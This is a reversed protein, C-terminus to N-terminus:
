ENEIDVENKYKGSKIPITLSSSDQNITGPNTIVRIEWLGDLGFDNSRVVWNGISNKKAERIIKKNVKPITIELNLSNINSVTFNNKDKVIIEFENSEGARSPSIRVEIEGEKYPARAITPLIDALEPNESLEEEFSGLHSIHSGGAAPAGYNTLMTTFLLVIFLGLSEISIVRKIIKIDREKKVKPVLIYHNVAGIIVLILVFGVKLLLRQGYETTIIESPTTFMTFSLLISAPLLIILSVTAIFSFGSIFLIKEDLNIKKMFLLYALIVLGGLWLGGALNHFMIAIKALMENPVLYSHGSLTYSYILAVIGLLFVVKGIIKTKKDVLLLAATSVAFFASTKILLSLGTPTGISISFAISFDEFEGSNLIFTNLFIIFPASVAGVLAFITTIKNSNVIVSEEIDLDNKRGIKAIYTIFGLLGILLFTTLYSIYKLIQNVQKYLFLPDKSLTSILNEKEDENALDEGVSFSVIGSIPHGDKSIVEYSIAAWGIIKNELIVKVLLGEQKDESEIKALEIIEGSSDILKFAKEPIDVKENFTIYFYEPSTLIVSGDSPTTGSVRSHAFSSIPYLFIQTILFLIVIKIKIM